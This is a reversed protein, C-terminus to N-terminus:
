NSGRRGRLRIDRMNGLDFVAKEGRSVGHAMAQRRDSFLASSDVEFPSAPAKADKWYGLAAEPHDSGERIRTAHGLIENLHTSHTYETPVRTGHRDPEGGVIYGKSGPQAVNHRRVGMTAGGTTEALHAFQV